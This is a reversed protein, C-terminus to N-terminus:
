ILRFIQKDATMNTHVRLKTRLMYLRTADFHPAGVEM